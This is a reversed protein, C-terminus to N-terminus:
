PMKAVENPPTPANVKNSVPSTSQLYTYIAQLDEDTYQGIGQWPMPPLVARGGAQGLHKGTRMTGIFEAVSWAGIGTASDSTINATYSIGWPGAFSTLDPAILMWSGPQLTTKDIPPLPGGSPHGSLLKSSDLVPGAPTFKKPSHCDHCFASVLYKGKNILEAHSLVKPSPDASTKEQASQNCGYQAFTLCTMTLLISGSFFTIKKM